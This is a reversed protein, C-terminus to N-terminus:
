KGGPIFVYRFNSDKRPTLEENVDTLILFNGELEKLRLELEDRSLPTSNWFAAFCGSTISPEVNLANIWRSNLDSESDKARLILCEASSNKESNVAELGSRIKGVKVIQSDWLSKDVSSSIVGFMNGMWGSRIATSTVLPAILLIIFVIKLSNVGIAVRKLSTLLVAVCLAALVLWVHLQKVAYYQVSGTFM